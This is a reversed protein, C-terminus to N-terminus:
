QDTLPIECMSEATVSDECADRDCASAKETGVTIEVLVGFENEKEVLRRM